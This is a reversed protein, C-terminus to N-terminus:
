EVTTVVPKKGRRDMIQSGPPLPTNLHSLVEDYLKNPGVVKSINTVEVSLELLNSYRYTGYKALKLEDKVMVGGSTTVLSPEDKGDMTFIAEGVLYDSKPYLTLEWTGQLGPGYSGQSAVKMLGSSLTKVSTVTELYKSFGRGTALQFQRLEYMNNRNSIPWRHLQTHDNMNLIRNNPDIRFGRLVELTENRDPAFLIYKEVSRWVILNGDRDYEISKYRRSRQPVFVPVDKEYNGVIKMAFVGEKAWTAECDILVMGQNPDSPNAKRAMMFSTKYAATNSIQDKESLLNLLEVGSIEALLMTSPFLLTAITAFTLVKKFPPNKNVM